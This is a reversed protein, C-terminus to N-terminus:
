ANPIMGPAPFWPLASLPTLWSGRYLVNASVLSLFNGSLQRKRTHAFLGSELWSAIEAIDTPDLRDLDVGRICFFGSGDNM